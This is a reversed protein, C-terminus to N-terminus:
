NIPLVTLRQCFLGFLRTIISSVENVKCLGYIMGSSNGVPKIFARTEESISDSVVLKKFINDVSKEQNFAVILSGNNKPNIKEFKCIDNLIIFNVHTM